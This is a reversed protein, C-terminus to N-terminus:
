DGSSPVSVDFSAAPLGQTHRQWALCLASELSRAFLEPKCVPSQKMKARLSLRLASLKEPTATVAQARQAYSEGEQVVFDDLGLHYMVSAAQRSHPEDGAITLTPVGMWAGHLASSGAGYPFSDLLLDIHRHLELYRQMPQRALLTVRDADIGAHSLGARISCDALPDPVGGVLLRSGPVSRLVTAWAGLTSANVKAARNFSGFTFRGNALRPLASVASAHDDAQFAAAVPLRIIREVFKRELQGHPVLFRDAIYYDVTKLGTTYPYGLWSIQIPAPKRALVSLRNAATHGSLDILIDIGDNMIQEFLEEDSLQAVRHWVCHNRFRDTVEDEVAHTHYVHVPESQGSTFSHWIPELLTAVPHSRLDGSVFGLRPKVRAARPSTQWVRQGRSLHAYREGFERHRTFLQGERLGEQHLSLFLSNSHARFCDPDINLAAAFSSEAQQLDGLDQFVNGLNVLVGVRRKSSPALALAREFCPLAEALRGKWRLAVGLNNHASYLDPDLNWAGHYTSIADDIQGAQLLADAVACFVLGKTPWKSLVAHWLHRAAALGGRRLELEACRLYIAPDSENSSDIGIRYLSLAEDLRGCAEM